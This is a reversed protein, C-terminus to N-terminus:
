ESHLSPYKTRNAPLFLHSYLHSYHSYLNSCLTSILAYRTYLVHSYMVRSVTKLEKSCMMEQEVKMERERCGRQGEESERGGREVYVMVRLRSSLAM